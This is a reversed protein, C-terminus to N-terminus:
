QFDITPKLRLWLSFSFLSFHASGSYNISNKPKNRSAESGNAEIFICRKQEFLGLLTKNGKKRKWVTDSAAEWDFAWKMLEMRAPGPFSFLTCVRQVVSCNVKFLSLAAVESWRRHQLSPRTTAVIPCFSTVLMTQIYLFTQELIPIWISSFLGKGSM